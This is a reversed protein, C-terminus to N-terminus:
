EDKENICTGEAGSRETCKLGNGCYGFKDDEGHCKEGPGNLCSPCCDGVNITEGYQCNRKTELCIRQATQNTCQRFGAALALAAALVVLALFPRYM